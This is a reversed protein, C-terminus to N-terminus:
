VTKDFTKKEKIHQKLEENAKQTQIEVSAELKQYLYEAPVCCIWLLILVPWWFIYHGISELTFVDKEYIKYEGDKIEGHIEHRNDVYKKATRIADRQYIGLLVFCFCYGIFMYVFLCCAGFLIWSLM